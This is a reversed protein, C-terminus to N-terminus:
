WAEPFEFRVQPSVNVDFSVPPEICLSYLYFPYPPPGPCSWALSLVHPKLCVRYLYILISLAVCRSLDPRLKISKSPNRNVQMRSEHINVTKNANSHNGYM